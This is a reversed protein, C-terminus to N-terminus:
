RRNPSRSGFSKSSGILRWRVVGHIAPIPGDEVVQRLAQRQHDDLVRALESYRQIINKRYDAIADGFGGDNPFPPNNKWSEALRALGRISFAEVM